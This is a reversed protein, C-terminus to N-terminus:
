RDPEPFHNFSQSALPQPALGDRNLWVGEGPQTTGVLLLPQGQLSQIADRMRRHATWCLEFDDGGQFSIQILSSLLSEANACTALTPWRAFWLERLASEFLNARLSSARAIHALDGGLGDSLDLAANAMGRLQQGLEIRPEPKQLSKVALQRLDLPLAALLGQVEPLQAPACCAALNDRRDYEILLGLRALGPTGSVWLDDDLQAGGRNFGTHTSPAQGFVTVSITIAANIGASTTDGGVLPCNYRSAISLLGTSFGGLWDHDLRPLSLNLTFGMPKAGCAALDSLNCALAKWGVAEPNDDSFFHVDAVLTDTSVFLANGPAPQLAACDDGIGALVSEGNALALPAFPTKFHRDILDFEM